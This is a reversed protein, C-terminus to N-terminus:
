CRAQDLFGHIWRAAVRSEVEHALSAVGERFGTEGILPRWRAMTARSYGKSFEPHFQMGLGHRGIEFMDYPCFEHSALLSAGEPLRVVQDQHSVVLSLSRRPPDMWARQELVRVRHVGVGLGNSAKDVQGGLARAILQHGFCVGITPRRAAHLARVLEHARAIWGDTDYVSWKSGTILWADAEHISAPFEGSPLRYVSFSLGRKEAVLLRRLMDPYDGFDPQLDADVWDCQLIGMHM